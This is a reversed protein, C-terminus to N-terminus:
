DCHRASLEFDAYVARRAGMAVSLVVGDQPAGFELSHKLDALDM